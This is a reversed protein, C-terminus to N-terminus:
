LTRLFKQLRARDLPDVALIQYAEADGSTRVRRAWAWIRHGDAPGVSFCLELAFTDRSSAPEFIRRLSLGSPSADLVEVAFPMGDIYKNAFVGGLPTRPDRRRNSEQTPQNMGCSPPVIYALPGLVLGCAAEHKWIRLAAVKHACAVFNRYKQSFLLTLASGAVSTIV